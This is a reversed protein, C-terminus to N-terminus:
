GAPTTVPLRESLRRQHGAPAVQGTLGPRAGAASETAKDQRVKVTHAAPGFNLTIIGSVGGIGSNKQTQRM